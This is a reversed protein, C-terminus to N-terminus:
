SIAPHQDVQERGVWQADLCKIVHGSAKPNAPMLPFDHAPLCDRIMMGLEDYGWFLRASTNGNTRANMELMKWDGQRNQRCQLTLPGRFGRQVLAAVVQQTLSELAPIHVREFEITQGMRHLNLSVFVESARGQRDVYVQCSYHYVRPPHLFLPPSGSFQAFYDDLEGAQGLYEQFLLTQQARLTQAEEPSRVFHVGLSAYGQPPKAILPYGLRDGFARLEAPDTEPGALLSAAFPLGAQLCFDASLTKDVTLLVSEPVGYATVLEPWSQQLSALVYADGDRGALVLDPKELQLITQLRAQFAETESTPPVRYFADCRFNTPHKALSSLGVVRVRQRRPFASFMLADLINQGVLSSVSTVLLTLM